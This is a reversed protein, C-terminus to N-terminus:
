KTTIDWKETIYPVKITFKHKIKMMERNVYIRLENLPPQLDEINGSVFAIFIDTASVQFVELVQNIARNKEM